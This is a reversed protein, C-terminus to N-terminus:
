RGEIDEAFFMGLNQRVGLEEICGKFDFTVIKKLM